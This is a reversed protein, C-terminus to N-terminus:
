NRNLKHRRLKRRTAAQNKDMKGPFDKTHSVPWPVINVGPLRFQDIDLLNEKASHPSKSDFPETQKALKLLSTITQVQGLSSRYNHLLHQSKWNKLLDSLRQYPIEISESDLPDELSVQIELIAIEGGVILINPGRSLNTIRIMQRTYQDYILNGYVELSNTLLQPSPLIKGILNSERCYIFEETSMLVTEMPELVVYNTGEPLSNLTNILNPYKSWKTVLEEILQRNELGKSTELLLGGIISNMPDETPRQFPKDLIWHNEPNESSLGVINPLQNQRYIDPGLHLRYGYKDLCHRRLPKIILDDDFAQYFNVDAFIAM